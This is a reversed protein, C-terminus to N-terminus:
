CNACMIISQGIPSFLVCVVLKEHTPCLLHPPQATRRFSVPVPPSEILLQSEILTYESDLACSFFLDHAGALGVLAFDGLQQVTAINTQRVSRLGAIVTLVTEPELTTALVITLKPIM